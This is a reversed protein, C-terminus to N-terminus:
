SFIDLAPRDQDPVDELAAAVFDDDLPGTIDALWAWDDKDPDMVSGELVGLWGMMAGPEAADLTFHEAGIGGSRPADGKVRGGGPAACFYPRPPSVARKVSCLFLHPPGTRHASLRGSLFESRQTLPAV